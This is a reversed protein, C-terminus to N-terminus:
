SRESNKKATEHKKLGCLHPNGEFKNNVTLSHHLVPMRSSILNCINRHFVQPAGHLPSAGTPTEDIPHPRVGSWPCNDALMRLHWMGVSEEAYKGAVMYEALGEHGGPIKAPLENRLENRGM